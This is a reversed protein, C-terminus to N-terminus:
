PNGRAQTRGARRRRLKSGLAAELEYLNAVVEHVVRVAADTRALVHGTAAHIEGTSNAHRAVDNLNGGAIRM